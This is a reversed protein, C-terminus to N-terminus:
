SFLPLETLVKIKGKKLSGIKYKGLSFIFIIKLFNFIKFSLPESLVESLVETIKM